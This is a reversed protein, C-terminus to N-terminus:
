NRPESSGETLGAMRVAECFCGNTYRAQFFLKKELCLYKWIAILDKGVVNVAGEPVFVGPQLKGISNIIAMYSGRPPRSCFKSTPFDRIRALDLCHESNGALIIPESFIPLDKKLGTVIKWVSQENLTCAMVQFGVRKPDLRYLQYFPKPALGFEGDVYEYAWGKKPCVLATQEALDESWLKVYFHLRGMGYERLISESLTGVGNTFVIIDLDLKRSKSCLEMFHSYLTPEGDGVIRILKGGAVKFQEILTILELFSIGKILKKGIYCIKPCTANCDVPLMLTLLGIRSFPKAALVESYIQMATAFVEIRRKEKSLALDSAVNGLAYNWREREPFLTNEFINM